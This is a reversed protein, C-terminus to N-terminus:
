PTIAFRLGNSLGGGGPSGQDRFFFQCFVETGPVQLAANAAIEAGFDVKFTGTCPANGGSNQLGTRQIAGAVFLTGGLFPAAQGADGYLLLGNKNAPLNSCDISFDGSM